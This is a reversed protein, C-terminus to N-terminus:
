GGRYFARIRGALGPSDLRLKRKIEETKGCAYPEVPLGISLFRIDFRGERDLLERVGSGFGGAVVGEEATIVTRGPGTRGLIMPEDLPVAFRADMVALSIGEKDLERAAELAPAVMSGLAILLDKGEKLIEGRGLPIERFEKDIPVGLGRAKPFRVAAPRGYHLASYVMHRLENEDRPSMVVMGPMNRLYAIDYIGQHTPGDDPVVGARDLAFVVPLKQLCVDHYIQDYARQLFTSYIAVVPKFGAVALGAAFIVAHQEAIGVDFFRDPYTEAFQQLGTGETMAATIALIRRDAKGAQLVARGFEESYSPTTEHNLPKGTAIEFPGASHFSQPNTQAPAYGRGKQTVCHVM